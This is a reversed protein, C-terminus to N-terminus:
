STVDILTNELPDVLRTTIVRDGTKLGSSVLVADAEIREVRVSVTKLRGDVVTYVTNDFTVAEPPLRFVNEIIAGPIIVQCFMGEVLPITATSGPQADRAGVRVAVTVTRTQSDFSVVRHLRGVWHHGEKDETWRVRCDVPVLGSFWAADPGDPREQFRLWRRVDRSDLSVQIELTSDDALTVAPQGVTVYHDKKVAATKIRADFPARIHCRQLNVAALERRAQAAALESRTEKLRIPYLAVSEAQQDAQVVASNYAQEAKEVGTRTGVRDKEYLQRLREYEAKALDRNRELTELRQAELALQKELREIVAQLRGVAAGAEQVAARYNSPDVRLLTEGQRVTEGVDLRPHIEVVRGSVEPAIAVTNVVRAEGYGTIMVQADEPQVTVVNVRLMREQSPAEGPPKKQRALLTMGVVGVLLVISCVVIRVTVNAISGIRKRPLDM